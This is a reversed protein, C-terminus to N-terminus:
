AKLCKILKCLFFVFHAACIFKASRAIEFYYIKLKFGIM